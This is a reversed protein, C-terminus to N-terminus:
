FISSGSLFHCYSVSLLVSVTLWATCLHSPKHAKLSKVHQLSNIGVIVHVTCVCFFIFLGGDPARKLDYKVTPNFYVFLMLSKGQAVCTVFDGCSSCAAVTNNKEKECVCRRRNSEWRSGGGESFCIWERQM